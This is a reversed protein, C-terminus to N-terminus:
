GARQRFRYFGSCSVDLVRSMTTIKFEGAHNQMVFHGEIVPLILHQKADKVTAM